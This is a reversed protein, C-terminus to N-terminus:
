NQRKSSELENSIEELKMEFDEKINRIKVHYMKERSDYNSKLEKMM